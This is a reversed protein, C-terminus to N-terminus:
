PKAAFNPTRKELFAQMGEKAEPGSFLKSFEDKERELGNKLEKYEAELSLKKCRGLASLPSQLIKGVTKEVVANLQDKPVCVSVLGAKEAELGSLKAGTTLMHMAKARGIRRVLRQTGGFGPILGLLTEPQGFRAEESALVLDCALALECGGGLAFGDVVAICVQELAEIKTTVRQGLSCFGKASAEDLKVMASIDAGAVFAKEGSGKLVVVRHDSTVQTLAQELEELVGLNLANLAKPRAIEVEFVHKKSQINLFEM